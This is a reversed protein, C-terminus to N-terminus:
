FLRVSSPSLCKFGSHGTEMKVLRICGDGMELRVVLPLVGIKRM